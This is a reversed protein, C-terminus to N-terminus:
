EAPNKRPPNWDAHTGDDPYNFTGKWSVARRLKGKDLLKQYEEPSVMGEAVWGFFGPKKQIAILEENFIKQIIEDVGNLQDIVTNKKHPTYMYMHFHALGFYLTIEGEEDELTTIAIPFIGPVPSPIEVSLYIKQYYKGQYSKIKAYKEWEPHREIIKFYVDKSFSNLKSLSLSM